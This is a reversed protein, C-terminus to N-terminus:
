ASLFQKILPLKSKIARDVLTPFVSNLRIFLKEPWGVSGERSQKNIFKIFQQAVYDTSDVSNGLAKNMADVNSANIDTQTARPAFYAFTFQTDSYERSLSETFGRLGFKSACYGSFGPYGIYGFASGINIFTTKNKQLKTHALIEQTFLIPTVLNTTILEQIRQESTSEFASFESIGAANVILDIAGYEKLKLLLQQRQISQNLDAILVEANFGLKKKIKALKHEDRGQILVRYGKSHLAEAIASGIGGSAGTVLSTQHKM